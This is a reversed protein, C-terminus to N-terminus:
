FSRPEKIDMIHINVYRGKFGFTQTQAKKTHINGKVKFLGYDDPTLEKQLYQVPEQKKGEILCCLVM